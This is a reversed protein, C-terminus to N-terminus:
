EVFAIDLQDAAAALRDRDVAGAQEPFIQHEAVEGAVEYFREVGAPGYMSAYRTLHGELAIAHEVGAPISMFDGRTLLHERGGAYVKM